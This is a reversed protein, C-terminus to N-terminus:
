LASWVRKDLLQLRIVAKIAELQSCRIDKYRLTTPVTVM